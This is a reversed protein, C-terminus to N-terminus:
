LKDEYTKVKLDEKYKDLKDNYAQQRKNSLLTSRIQATAQELTADYAENSANQVYILHWGYSSKVPESVTDNPLNKFGEVFEEIMGSNEYPLYGLYGGIGKTSDTNYEDAYKKFDDLSTIKAKIEKATEEDELLLNYVDAGAERSFSDKNENYYTSVEEDTVVQDKTIDEIVKSIIYQEEIYKRFTEETYGYYDLFEKFEDEISATDTSNAAINDKYSQITKEVEKNIEEDSPVLKLEEAKQLLVSNNVLTDLVSKRTSKLTDVLEENEEFDKGYQEEYYDLQSQIEADVDARTIKQDGVKALVVKGLSSKTRKVMNCGTFSLAMVGILAMSIYTKVKKM